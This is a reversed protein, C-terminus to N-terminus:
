AERGGGGVDAAAQEVRKEGLHQRSFTKSHATTATPGSTIDMPHTLDQEAVSSLGNSSSTVEATQRRCAGSAEGDRGEGRSKACRYQYRSFRLDADDLGAGAAAAQSNRRQQCAM